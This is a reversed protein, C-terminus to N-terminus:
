VRLLLRHEFVVFYFHIVYSASAPNKGSVAVQGGGGANQMAVGLLMGMVQQLKVNDGVVRLKELDSELELEEDAHGPQESASPAHAYIEMDLILHIEKQAAQGRLLQVSGEVVEWFNVSKRSVHLSGTALEDSYILENLVAVVAICVHCSNVTVQLVSSYLIYNWRFGVERRVKKLKM